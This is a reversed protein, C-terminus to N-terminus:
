PQLILVWEETDASWVPAITEGILYPGWYRRSGDEAFAMLVDGPQLVLEGKPSSLLLGKASGEQPAFDWHIPEPAISSQSRWVVRVAHNTQNSVRM